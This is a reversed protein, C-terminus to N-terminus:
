TRVSRRLALGAALLAGGLAAVLVVPLGSYPLAQGSHKKSASAAPATSSGSSTAPTTASPTGAAASPSTNSPTSSPKPKPKPKSAPTSGALPDVYQNDGASNDNGGGDALAAAPLALLLAALM